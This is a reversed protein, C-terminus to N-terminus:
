WSLIGSPFYKKLLSVYYPLMSPIDVEEEIKSYLDCRQFEKLLPLMKWDKDSALHAYAEEQHWPYFSHFRIIYLAEEPLLCENNKLVQYMYEDHGFSMIINDFGIKEEYIGLKSSYVENKSDPNQLFYESYICKDSFACGLPFTDGTVDWQPLGHMKHHTLVKGLDHIFGLLHFWDKEPYLKRCAQGTQIAHTLQKRRTDPDSQDVIDDLLNFVDLINMKWRGVPFVESHIKRVHEFTQNIRNLKYNDSVQCNKKYKRFTKKEVQSMASVEISEPLLINSM